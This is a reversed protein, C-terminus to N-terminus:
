LSVTININSFYKKLETSLVVNYENMLLRSKRSFDPSKKYKKSDFLSKSINSEYVMNERMNYKLKGYEFHKKSRIM